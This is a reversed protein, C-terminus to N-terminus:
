LALRLALIQQAVVLSSYLFNRTSVSPYFEFQVLDGTNAFVTTPNYALKGDAGVTVRHTTNQALATAASFFFLLLKM